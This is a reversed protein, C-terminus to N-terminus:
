NNESFIDISNNFLNVIKVVMVDIQKILGIDKIM